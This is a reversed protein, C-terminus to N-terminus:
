RGLDKNPRAFHTVFLDLRLNGQLQATASELDTQRLGSSDIVLESVQKLVAGDSRRLRLCRLSNGQVANEGLLLRDLLFGQHHNCLSRSALAALRLVQDRDVIVLPLTPM